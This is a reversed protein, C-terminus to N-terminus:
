EPDRDDNDFIMTKYARLEPKTLRITKVLIVVFLVIFILLGAIYYWEVGYKGSLLEGVFGM